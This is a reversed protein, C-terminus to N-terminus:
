GLLDGGCQNKFQSLLYVSSDCLTLTTKNVFHPTQHQVIIQPIIQRIKNLGARLLHLDIIVM